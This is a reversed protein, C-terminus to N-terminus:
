RGTNMADEADRVMQAIHDKGDNDSEVFRQLEKELRKVKLKNVLEHIGTYCAIGAAAGLLVVGTTKAAIASVQKLAEDGLVLEFCRIEGSKLLERVNELTAPTEVAVNEVVSEEVTEIINEINEM